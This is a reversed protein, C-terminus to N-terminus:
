FEVTDDSIKVIEGNNIENINIKDVTPIEAIIAGAVVIPEAEQVIMALPASQYYRLAYITYSGVTSGAGRPFVFIKGTINGCGEVNGTHPDIDGLIIVPRECKVVKGKVTGPYIVRGNLIM